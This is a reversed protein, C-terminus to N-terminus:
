FNVNAILNFHHFNTRYAMDEDTMEDPDESLRGVYLFSVELGKLLHGFQHTITSTVQNYVPLNYKNFAVNNRGTSEVRNLFISLDLLKQKAKRLEYVAGLQFIDLNGLGDVWSRPQSVYFNERGMERPYLFRGNDFAHLYAGSFRFCGKKFGAQGSIVDAREDPQVYREAYDLESQKPLPHQHVYQVGAFFEDNEWDSQFWYTSSIRDFVYAWIQNTWSESSHYKYGVVALGRSSATEHYEAPTGNPEFGNGSQGIAENLDYWETMGRPSVGNIFGIRAAHNKTEIGSWFGRYVFPKMRGDRMLLLPGENINQKGYTIWFQKSRYRLYLEELRDLDNGVQPRHVDYLEIEWKASAGPDEENYLNSSATRYTFIGKVGAEFGKWNATSYHLAGGTANTWFDRDDGRNNTAMFYNRFHGHFHGESFVERINHVALSDQHQQGWCVSLGAASVVSFAM